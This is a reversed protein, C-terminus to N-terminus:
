RSNRRSWLAAEELVSPTLHQLRRRFLYLCALRFLTRAAFSAVADDPARGGARRYAGLLRAGDERGRAAEDGRELARLVLHALLNGMDEAAQGPHLMELDLLAIDRGCALINRDHLDGHALTQRVGSTPPPAPLTELAAEYASAREPFHSAVHAFHERSEPVPRRPPLDEPLDAAHFAALATGVQGLARWAQGDRLLDYLTRGPMEEFVVADGQTEIVRAFAPFDDGGSASAREVAGLQRLLRRAKGARLVKVYRAPGTGRGAPIRVMARRGVRYSVVDGSTAWRGLDPLAADDEPRVEAFADREVVYRGFVRRGDLAQAYGPWSGEPRPYFVEWTFGALLPARQRFFGPRAAGERGSERGSERRVATPPRARLEEIARELLAAGREASGPELRRVRLLARRALGAAVFFREDAGHHGRAERLYRGRVEEHFRAAAVALPDNGLELEILHAGLEGLDAMPHGMGAREFDVLVPGAAAVVIQHLHLDGHVPVVPHGSNPALSDLRATLTSALGELSPELLAIADLSERVGPAPEPARSAIVVGSGHLALLTDALGRALEGVPGSAIARLMEEGEVAEEVALHGDFITGLPRPVIAGAAKRIDGALRSLGEARRDTFLRLFVDRRGKVGDGGRVALRGRAVVRREPKYKVIAHETGRGRVRAGVAAFEPLATLARKLKDVDTAFPLLRLRADNPFLFLVGSADPLLAVGPGLPTPRARLRRWKAALERSRRDPHLRVYGPLTVVRGEPDTGVIRYSILTVAGPKVRIYDPRAETVPYGAARLLAAAGTRHDASRWAEVEPGAAVLRRPPPSLLTRM